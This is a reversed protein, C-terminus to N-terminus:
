PLAFVGRCIANGYRKAEELTQEHRSKVNNAFRVFDTVTDRRVHLKDGSNLTVIVANITAQASLAQMAGVLGTQGTQPLAIDVEVTALDTWLASTRKEGKRWRLGTHCIEIQNIRGSYIRFAASILWFGLLFLGTALVSSVAASSSIM